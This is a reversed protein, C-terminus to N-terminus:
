RPRSVRRRILPVLLLLLLAGTPRAAGVGCDCGSAPCAPDPGWEEAGNCDNDVEDDCYLSEDVNPNVDPNGDDCDGECPM